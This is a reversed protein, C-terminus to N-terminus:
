NYNQRFQGSLVGVKTHNGLAVSSTFGVFYYLVAMTYCAYFTYSRCELIAIDEHTKLINRNSELNNPCRMRCALSRNPM